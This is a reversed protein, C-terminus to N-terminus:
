RRGRPEQHSPTASWPRVNAPRPARGTQPTLSLRTRSERHSPTAPWLRANVTRPRFCSKESLLVLRPPASLLRRSSLVGVTVQIKVMHAGYFMYSALISEPAEVLLGALWGCVFIPLTLCLTFFSARNAAACVACPGAVLPDALDRM